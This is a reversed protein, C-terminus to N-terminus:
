RKPEYKNPKLLFLPPYGNEQSSRRRLLPPHHCESTSHLERGQQRSLTVEPQSHGSVLSMAGGSKHKLNAFSRRLRLGVFCDNWSIRVQQGRFSRRPMATSLSPSQLHRSLCEEFQCSGPRHGNTSNWAPSQSTALADSWNERSLPAIKGRQCWCRKLALKLQM